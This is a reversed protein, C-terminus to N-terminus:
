ECRADDYFMEFVCSCLPAPLPLHRLRGRGEATTVSPPVAAAAAAAVAAAIPAPPASSAGNSPRAPTPHRASDPATRPSGQHQRRKSDKGDTAPRTQTAKQPIMITALDKMTIKTIATGALPMILITPRRSTSAELAVEAEWTTRVAM